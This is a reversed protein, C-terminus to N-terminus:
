IFMKRQKRQPPSSLAVTFTQELECLEGYLGKLTLLDSFRQEVAQTLRLLRDRDCRYKSSEVWWWYKPLLANLERVLQRSDRQLVRKAETRESRSLKLQTSETHRMTTM